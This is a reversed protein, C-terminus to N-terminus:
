FTEGTFEEFQRKLEADSVGVANRELDKSVSKIVPDLNLAEFEPVYIVINHSRGTKFYHVCAKKFYDKPPGLTDIYFQKNTIEIFFEGCTLCKMQVRLNLGMEVLQHYDTAM